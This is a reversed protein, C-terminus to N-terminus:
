MVETHLVVKMRSRYVMNDWYLYPISSLFFLLLFHRGRYKRCPQIYLTREGQMWRAMELMDARSLLDQHVTTRLEFPIGLRELTEVAEIAASKLLLDPLNWGCCYPGLINLDHIHLEGHNHAEKIEESYIRELWYKSTVLSVIHNNLGQLSYNMNSNEKVRWDELDMYEEFIKEADFFIKKASRLSHRSERYLIYRKAVEYMDREMLTKEVIDQIDEVSPSRDAYKRRLEDEVQLGIEQALELDDTGSAMCARYVASVIRSRDYDIM